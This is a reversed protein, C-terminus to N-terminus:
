DAVAFYTVTTPNVYVYQDRNDQSGGPNQYVPGCLDRGLIFGEFRECLQDDKIYATGNLITNEAALVVSDGKGYEKIFSSNRAADRGSWTKDTILELLTQGALRQRAESQFGLPWDPMGAKRLGDIRLNLDQERAHHDYAVRYYSLNLFPEDKQLAEVQAAAEELRGALALAMALIERPADGLSRIQVGDIPTLVEIAEVFKHNLFFAWGYYTVHYPPPKPDLRMATKMADLAVEPQGAYGFVIAFATRADASNPDLDVARRALKKAEAYDKDVMHMLALVSHADALTPDLALAKRAAVIAEQRAVAGGMAYRSSSLRWLDATLQAYGAYARAFSADLAWAKAFLSLSERMRSQDRSFFGERAQLYLDYAEFKPAKRLALNNQETRTLQVALASVIRSVLEDQVAFLDTLKRDYREAWVHHGTGGEVLQANVRVRDGSRRVSGELVYRVGLESAVQKIRVSKGKFTFVSNRAIVFLGSVKSLDTILDDTLGDAFYDQAEDDSRNEFPLVAISPRDTPMTATQDSHIRNTPPADYQWWILGGGLAACILVLAALQWLRGPKVSVTGSAPSCAITTADAAALIRFVRVPRAINKVAVEGLDELGVDVRDRIQDRVSRSICIGGPSALGEIRAAVNVGDGLLDDGEAVVDGVNIGIRFELRRDESVAANRVAMDAQVEMAYRLADVASAFEILLSDGATNAIRGHFRSLKHEFVESRHSRLQAITEEEDSGMLRSYNAVDAAIIAALRRQVNQM